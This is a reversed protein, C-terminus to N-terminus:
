GRGCLRARAPHLLSVPVARRSRCDLGVSECIVGPAERWPNCGRTSSPRRRTTAASARATISATAMSRSISLLFRGGVIPLSKPMFNSISGDRCPNTGPVSRNCSPNASSVPSRFTTWLFRTACFKRNSSRCVRQAIEEDKVEGPKFSLYGGVAFQADPEARWAEILIELRRKHFLDDSMWINFLRDRRSNFVMTELRVPAAIPRISM